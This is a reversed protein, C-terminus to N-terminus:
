TKKQTERYAKQQALIEEKHTQQYAKKRAAVEEKHQEYYTTFARFPSCSQGEFRLVQGSHHARTLFNDPLM